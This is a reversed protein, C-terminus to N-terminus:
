PVTVEETEAEITQVEVHDPADGTVKVVKVTSHTGTADPAVGTLMGNKDADGSSYMADSYIHLKQGITLSATSGEAILGDGVYLRVGPESLTTIRGVKTDNAEYAGIGTDGILTSPKAFNLCLEYVSTANSHSTNVVGGEVYRPTTVSKDVLAVWIGPMAEFSEKDYISRSIRHLKSLPTLVDFSKSLM